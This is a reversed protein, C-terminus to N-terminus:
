LIPATPGALGRPLSPFAVAHVAPIMAVRRCVAPRGVRGVRAVSSRKAHLFPVRYCVLQFPSEDSPRPRGRPPWKSSLTSVNITSWIPLMQRPLFASLFVNGHPAEVDALTALILLVCRDDSLAYVETLLGSEVSELCRDKDSRQLRQIMSPCHAPPFFFFLSGSARFSFRTLPFQLTPTPM